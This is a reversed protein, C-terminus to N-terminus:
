GWIERGFETIQLATGNRHENIKVIGNRSLKRATRRQGATLTQWACFSWEDHSDTNLDRYIVLLVVEDNDTITYEDNGLLEMMIVNADMDNSGNNTASNM